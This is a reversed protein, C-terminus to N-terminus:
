TSRRDERFKLRVRCEPRGNHPSGSDMTLSFNVDTPVGFDCCDSLWGMSRTMTWDNASGKCVRATDMDPLGVVLWVSFTM